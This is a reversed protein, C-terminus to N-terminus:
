KKEQNKPTECFCGSRYVGENNNIIVKINIIGVIYM